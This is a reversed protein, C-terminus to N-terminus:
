KGALQERIFELDPKDAVHGLTFAASVMDNLSRITTLFVRSRIPINQMPLYPKGRKKGSEPL